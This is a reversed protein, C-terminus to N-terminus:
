LLITSLLEAPAGFWSGWEFLLGTLVADDQVRGRAISLGKEASGTGTQM